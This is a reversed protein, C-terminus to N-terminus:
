WRRVWISRSWAKRLPLEVGLHLLCAALSFSPVFVERRTRKITNYYSYGIVIPIRRVVGDDDRPGNLPAIRSYDLLDMSPMNANPCYGYSSRDAPNAFHVDGSPIAMDNLYPIREGWNEDGSEDTGFIDADSWKEILVSQGVGIAGGRFNFGLLLQFKGDESVAAFDNALSKIGQEAVLRNMRLLSRRELDVQDASVLKLDSIISAIKDSSESVRDADKAGGELTSQFIIDYALVSPDFYDRVFAIQDAFPKRSLWQGAGYRGKKEHTLPDIAILIVGKPHPRSSQLVSKARMRLDVSGADLTSMPGSLLYVAELSLVSLMIVALLGSIRFQKANSPTGVIM